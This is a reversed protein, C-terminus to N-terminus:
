TPVIKGAHHDDIHATPPRHQPNWGFAFLPVGVAQEGHRRFEGHEEALDRSVLPSPSDELWEVLRTIGVRRATINNARYNSLNPLCGSDDDVLPYSAPLIPLRFRRLLECAGM